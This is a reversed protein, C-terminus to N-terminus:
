EVAVAHAIRAPVAVAPWIGREPDLAAGEQDVDVYGAVEAAPVIRADNVALVIVALAAGTRPIGPDTVPVRPRAPLPEPVTVIVGCAAAPEGVSVSGVADPVKETPADDGRVSLAVVPFRVQAVHAVVVFPPASLPVAGIATLTAPAIEIEPAAPWTGFPALPVNM